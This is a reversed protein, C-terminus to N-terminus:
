QSEAKRIQEEMGDALQTYEKQLFPNSQHVRALRRWEAIHREAGELHIKRAKKDTAEDAM